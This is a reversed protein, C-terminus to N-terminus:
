RFASVSTKTVAVKEDKEGPGRMSPLVVYGACMMASDSFRAVFVM